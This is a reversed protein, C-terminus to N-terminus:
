LYGFAQLAPRAAETLRDQEAMPRDRWRGHGPMATVAAQAEELRQADIGPVLSRLLDALAPSTPDTAEELRLVHHHAGFLRRGCALIELNTATWFRISALPLDDGPAEGFRSEYHRDLQKQNASLAIDRGDRVVHVIRAGPLAEAIFPLVFLLRPNKWGWLAPEGGEARVTAAVQRIGEVGSGRLESPVDPLSYDLSRTRTLIPNILRDLVPPLHRLDGAHNVTSGMFAGAAIMADRIARTGSGGTGGILIPSM